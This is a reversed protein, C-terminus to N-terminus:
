RSVCNTFGRGMTVPLRASSGTGDEFVLTNVYSYQNDNREFFTKVLPIADEYHESGAFIGAIHGLAQVLLPAVADGDEPTAKRIM